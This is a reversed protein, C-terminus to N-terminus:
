ASRRLSRALFSLSERRRADLRSEVSSWDPEDIPPTNSGGAPNPLLLRDELGFCELLSTFRTLGRGSNGIAIFPKRFLISFVCGHFSDTVVFKATRFGNLWGEVSPRSDTRGDLMSFPVLSRSTAVKHIIETKFPDPDLMYAFLGSEFDVRDSGSLLGIYDSPELLMTPDLVQVAEIGLRERCLEVGSSERVSIGSFESLHQRMRRTDIDDFPWDSVGFSAAYSVKVTGPPAFGLCFADFLNGRAYEKRWVQDSGTVFADFGSRGERRLSALSGIKRTKPAVRSSVFRRLHRTRDLVSRYRTAWLVDYGLRDPLLDLIRNLLMGKAGDPFPLLNVLRPSRGERLLASNLAYAQLIGGINSGLPLTVIGTNM